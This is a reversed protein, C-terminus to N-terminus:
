CEKGVRREESRGAAMLAGAATGPMGVTAAGADDMGSGAFCVGVAVVFYVPLHELFGADPLQHPNRKQRPLKQPYFLTSDM